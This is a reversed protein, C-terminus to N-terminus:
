HPCNFHITPITALHNRSTSLMRLPVGFTGGDQAAAACRTLTDPSRARLPARTSSAKPTPARMSLPSGNLIQLGKPHEGALRRVEVVLGRSFNRRGHIREVGRLVHNAARLIMNVARRIRKAARHVHNRYNHVHNVGTRVDNWVIIFAEDYSFGNNAARRIQNAVILLPNESRHFHNAHSHIVKM